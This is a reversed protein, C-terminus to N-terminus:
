KKKEKFYDYFPVVIWWILIISILYVLGKTMWGSTQNLINTGLFFMVSIVIVDRVFVESLVRIM